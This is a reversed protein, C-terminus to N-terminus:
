PKNGSYYILKKRYKEYTAISGHIKMKEKTAGLWAGVGTGFVATTLGFLISKEGATLSHSNEPDDSGQVLGAIGGLFLGSLSGALMGKGVSNKRRLKIIEIHSIAINLETVYKESLGTSDREQLITLTSDGAGRLIGKLKEEGSNLQLWIKCAPQDQHEQQASSSQISLAFMSFLILVIKMIVSGGTHIHNSLTRYNALAQRLSMERHIM